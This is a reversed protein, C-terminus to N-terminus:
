GCQFMTCNCYLFSCVCNLVYKYDRLPGLSLRSSKLPLSFRRRVEETHESEDVNTTEQSSQAAGQRIGDSSHKLCTSNSSQEVGYQSCLAALKRHESAALSLGLKVGGFM